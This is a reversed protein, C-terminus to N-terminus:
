LYYHSAIPGIIIYNNSRITGGVTRQERFFVFLDSSSTLIILQSNSMDLYNYGVYMSPSRCVNRPTWGVFM